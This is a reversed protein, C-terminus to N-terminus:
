GAKPAFFERLLALNLPKSHELAYRDLANATEIVDRASRPLRPLAYDALEMKLTVGRVALARTFLAMLLMDDPPPLQVQPLAALRSQLDPLKINWGALPVESCFLIHTNNTAARNYLHFLPELAEPAIDDAGDIVIPQAPADLLRVADDASKVYAAGTQQQWIHALHTKGSGAPGSIILGPAGWNPYRNLWKVAEANSETIIFDDAGQTGKYALDFPLQKTM